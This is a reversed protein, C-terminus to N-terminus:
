WDIARGDKSKHYEVSVVVGDRKYQETMFLLSPVSYYPYVYKRQVLMYDNAIQSLPEENRVDNHSDGYAVVDGDIVAVWKGLIMM